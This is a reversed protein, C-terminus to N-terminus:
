LMSAAEKPLDEKKKKCIKKEWLSGGNELFYLFLQVHDVKKTRATKEGEM